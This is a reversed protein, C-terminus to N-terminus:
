VADKLTKKIYNTGKKTQKEEEQIPKVEKPKKLIEAAQEPNGWANPRPEKNRNEFHRVYGGEEENKREEYNRNGKRDNYPKGRDGRRRNDYGGRKFNGREHYSRGENDGHNEVHETGWNDTREEVDGRHEDDDYKRKENRDMRDFKSPGKQYFGRRNGRGERGSQPRYNKRENDQTKHETKLDEDRVHENKQEKVEATEVAKSPEQTEKVEVKEQSEKVDSKEVDRFENEREKHEKKIYRKENHQSHDEENAPKKESDFKKLFELEKNLTDVPKANGFPNSKPKSVQPAPQTKVTEESPAITIKTAQKEGRAKNEFKREYPKDNREPKNREEKDRDHGHADDRDFGRNYKTYEKKEYGSRDYGGRDYGKHDDYGRRGGRGGRATRGGRGGGRTAGGRPYGQKSLSANFSRGCVETDHREAVKLADAATSVKITGMGNPGREGQELYIEASDSLQLESRLDKETIRYSLNALYLTCPLSQNKIASILNERRFNQAIPQSNPEAAPHEQDSWDDESEEAWNSKKQGEM